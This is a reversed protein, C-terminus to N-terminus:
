HSGCIGFLCEADDALVRDLARDIVVTWYSRDVFLESALLGGVERRPYQGETSSSITFMGLSSSPPANCRKSRKSKQDSLKSYSLRPSM